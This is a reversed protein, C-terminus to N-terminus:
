RAHDLCATEFIAKDHEDFLVTEIVNRGTDDRYHMTDAYMELLADLNRANWADIWQRARKDPLIM